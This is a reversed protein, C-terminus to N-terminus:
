ANTSDDAIAFADKQPRTAIQYGDLGKDGIAHVEVHFPRGRRRRLKITAGDVEARIGTIYQM